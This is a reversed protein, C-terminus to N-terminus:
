AVLLLLVQGEDSLVCTVNPMGQRPCRPPWHETVAGKGGGKGQVMNHLFTVHCRRCHCVRPQQYQVQLLHGQLLDEGLLYLLQEVGRTQAEAVDQADPMHLGGGVVWLGIAQHLAQLVGQAGAQSAGRPSPVEGPNQQRQM